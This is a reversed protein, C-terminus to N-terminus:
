GHMCAKTRQFIVMCRAGMFDGRSNRAVMGLGISSKTPGNTADCNVKIHDNPPPKWDHQIQVPPEANSESTSQDLNSCRM